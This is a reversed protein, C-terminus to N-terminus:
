KTLRDLESMQKVLRRMLNTLEKILNVLRSMFQTNGKKNQSIWKLKDFGMKFM